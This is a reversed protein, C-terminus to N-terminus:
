SHRVDISSPSPWTYETGEAGPITNQGFEAGAENVGFFQFKTRNPCSVQRPQLNSTLTPSSDTPTPERAALGFASNAFLLAVVPAIAISLKMEEVGNDKLRFFFCPFTPSLRGQFSKLIGTDM